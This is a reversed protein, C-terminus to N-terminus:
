KQLKMEVDRTKKDKVVKFNIQKIGAASRLANGADVKKQWVGEEEEGIRRPKAPAEAALAFVFSCKNWMAM